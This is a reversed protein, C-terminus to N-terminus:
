PSVQGGSLEGSTALFEVTMAIVPQNVTIETSAWFPEGRSVTLEVVGGADRTAEVMSRGPSAPMTAEDRVVEIWLVHGLSSPLRAPPVIADIESVLGPALRYGAVEITEGRYFRERLLAVTERGGGSALTAAVRLRLFQTLYRPGDFVPQWLVSREVAPLRGSSIADAALAGGLRVALLGSFNLGRSRCWHRVNGLDHQWGDWSAESFDGASDGTGFLDVVVTALGGKALGRSIEAVMRRSKNMEEAFPPVVLVADTAGPPKRLLVFVPGRPGNVFHGSLQTQVNEVTATM